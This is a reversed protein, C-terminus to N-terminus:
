INHDRSFLLVKCQTLHCDSTLGRFLRSETTFIYKKKSEFLATMGYAILETYGKAAICIVGLEVYREFGFEEKREEEEGM